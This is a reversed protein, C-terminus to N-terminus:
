ATTCGGLVVTTSHAAVSDAPMDCRYGSTVRKVEHECDAYFAVYSVCDPPLEGSGFRKSSDKHYVLLQGGSYAAPLCVVLTGFMGPAQVCLGHIPAMLLLRAGQICSGHVAVTPLTKLKTHGSLLDTICM